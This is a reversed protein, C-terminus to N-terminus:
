LWKVTSLVQCIEDSLGRGLLENIKNSSISDVLYAYPEGNYTFRDGFRTRAWFAFSYMQGIAFELAQVSDAGMSQSSHEQGLIRLKTDCFWVDDESFPADVWVLCERSRGGLGSIKFERQAIIM